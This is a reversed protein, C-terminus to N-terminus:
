GQALNEVHTCRDIQVILEAAQAEDVLDQDVPYRTSKRIIPIRAGQHDGGVRLARGTQQDATVGIVRDRIVQRVHQLLELHTKDGLTFLVPSAKMSARQQMLPTESAANASTNGAGAAACVT